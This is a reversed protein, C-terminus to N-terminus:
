QSLSTLEFVSNWESPSFCEATSQCCPFVANVCRQFHSIKNEFSVTINETCYYAMMAGKVASRFSLDRSGNKITFTQDRPSEEFHPAFCTVLGSVVVRCLLHPLSISECFRVSSIRVHARVVVFMLISLLIHGDHLGIPCTLRRYVRKSVRLWLHFRELRFNCCCCISPTSASSRLHGHFPTQTEARTNQM